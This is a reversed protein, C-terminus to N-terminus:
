FHILGYQDTYFGTWPFRCAPIDVEVIRIMESEPMFFERDYESTIFEKPIIDFGKEPEPSKICASMESVCYTETEDLDCDQRVAQVYKREKIYDGFSSDPIKFIVSDETRRAHEYEPDLEVYDDYIMNSNEDEKEIRRIYAFVRNRQDSERHVGVSALHGIDSGMQAKDDYFRITFGIKDLDEIFQEGKACVMLGGDRDFSLIIEPEKSEEFIGGINDDQGEGTEASETDTKGEETQGADPNRGKLTNVSGCASLVAPGITLIIMILAIIPRFGATKKKMM